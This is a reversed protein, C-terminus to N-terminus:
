RAIISQQGSLVGFQGDSPNLKPVGVRQLLKWFHFSGKRRQTVCFASPDGSWAFREANAEIAGVYEKGEHGFTILVFGFPGLRNIRKLELDQKPSTPMKINFPAKKQGLSKVEAFCPVYGPYLIALDVIGVLFQHSMKWAHGGDEKILQILHRQHDLERSM